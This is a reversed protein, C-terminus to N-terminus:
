FGGLKFDSFIMPYVSIATFVIYGVM